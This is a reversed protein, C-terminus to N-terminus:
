SRNGAGRRFPNRENRNKIEYFVTVREVTGEKGCFTVSPEGAQGLVGERRSGTAALKKRTEACPMKKQGRYIHKLLKLRKKTPLINPGHQKKPIKSYKRHIRLYFQNNFPASPRNQKM